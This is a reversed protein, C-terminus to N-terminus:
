LSSLLGSGSSGSGLSALQSMMWSQQQQMRSIAQEMATFQELYRQRTSELRRDLDTIDEEVREIQEDYYDLRNPITGTNIQILQDLYSDLRTAVGDFGESDSEAKFLNMVEDPASKLAEKFEDTDLSMVGDRDISIGVSYISSYDSDTNVRETFLSRIRMQLRMLTSDGQLVEAKETEPDYSSKSNIFDMVSNYQDVFAKVTSIAKDTDSSVNIEATGTDKINFNVGTVADSITNSSSNVQVGNITLDADAAGQLINKYQEQTNYIEVETLRSYKSDNSDNIKIRIKDTEVASFNNTVTGETNDTVEEVTQWSGSDSDWYKIEYDKVGYESAPYQASDLTHVKIQDLTKVSNFDLQVWDNSFDNVTDDNWGDGNGWSTTDGDNLSLVPYDGSSHQSSATLDASVALNTKSGTILGLDALVNNSDQFEIRNDVGTEKSELVLTDNIISSNVGIDSTENIKTNIDTLSDTAAITITKGNIVVDGSLGLESSSDVQKDSAIRLSKALTNVNVQYSGAAAESTVTATAIDENNSTAKNSNFTSSLKLQTLKKELSDLRSNVDRWADKQAQLEYIEAEMSEKPRMELQMLQDIIQQTPIGSSLGDLSLDAM